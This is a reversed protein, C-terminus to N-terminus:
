FPLHYYKIYDKKSINIKKWFQYWKRNITQKVLDRLEKNESKVREYRNRYDEIIEDRRSLKYEVEEEKAKNLSEKTINDEIIDKDCIIYTISNDTSRIAKKIACEMKLKEVYLSDNQNLNPSNLQVTDIVKETVFEEDIRIEKKISDFIRDSFSITSYKDEGFYYKKRFVEQKIITEYREM